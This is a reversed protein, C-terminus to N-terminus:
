KIMPQLFTNEETNSSGTVKRRQSGVTAVENTYLTLFHYFFCSFFYSFFNYFHISSYPVFSLHSSFPLTLFCNSFLYDNWRLINIENKKEIKKWIRLYSGVVSISKKICKKKDRSSNIALARELCKWTFLYM